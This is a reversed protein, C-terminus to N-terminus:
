HEVTQQEIRYYEDLGILDECEKRWAIMKDHPLGSSGTKRFNLIVRKMEQVAPCLLQTPYTGMKYGMDEFEQVSFIPRKLRNGESNVFTVLGKIERPALRAEEVSNPFVMVMDAGAELFLNAREVGEAFGDTAMADTRGMIVFNPDSRAALAAKIKAIMEERPVVHEVGKHYHARKPFIQDEIHLGAAGAKEIERVTRMVHLPEGFGAGADVILPIGVADTIYKTAMALETLTQLPESVVTGVGLQYGGLHVCEMGCAESLRATLPDWVGLGLIFRPGALLERFKVLPSKKQM